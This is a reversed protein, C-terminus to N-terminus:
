TSIRRGRVSLLGSRAERQTGRSRAQVQAKITLVPCPAHRVLKEAESGMILHNLGTRGHTSLVIMDIKLKRVLECIVQHIVGFHLEKRCRPYEKATRNEITALENAAAKQREELVKTPENWREAGYPLPELVHVLIVESQHERALDVAYKLATLSQRSFDIPVLIRDIKMTKFAAWRIITTGFELRQEGRSVFSPLGAFSAALGAGGPLFKAGMM